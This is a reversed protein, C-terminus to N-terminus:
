SETRRSAEQALQVRSTLGLKTYVHTLHTQVTRHSVFLRAAIDKNGLGEGVLRVVDLETPTLSAWGSSPRKREGRGRQAYAVVEQTSLATGEAWAADFDNEDLVNRITAVLAEYTADHVKFRVVGIRQRITHAAGLLRTAEQYSSAEAAVAALCELIGPIGLETGIAAACALADHADREARDPEGDALAIRARTTLAVTKHWGNAAPVDEDVLRRAADVDGLALEAEGLPNRIAAVLEAGQSALHRTAAQGHDQAVAPDGAALAAIAAAFQAFGESLEGIQGSDEVAAEAMSRAAETEGMYALVQAQATLSGARWMLDQAADADTLVERNGATAGALDGSVMKSWALWIRCTRSLFGDGISDAIERGAEAATRAERPDGAIMAAYAQGALNQAMAFPDNAARSMNIAQVLDRGVLDASWAGVFSRATLARGMLAPDELQRAAAVALEAHAASGPAGVWATLMAKDALARALVAPEIDLREVAEDTFVADFWALGEQIRGRGFWMPHLASALQLARNDDSNERSWAFAGRLNDIEIEAEDILAEGGPQQPADLLVARATYYDRHRSRLDDAEGSEGLREQAYQRVTELLRYRTRGRGAEAVVLSKDVLLTLLDLIQYREVDSGGAISQAADLDFGGMFVALRRFLVREPETLLAHSWDVSARLTQQRRVATRSGGTLLRFRDHLSDLIEALSLARVRAAALEIALPVGDLRRCIEIVSDVNDDTLGFDPRALRARDTFLDAAENEPSLSPVRWTVEGPIGIPERSTTLLTVGASAQLVAVILDACADILHECNDLVILARCDDVFRLLTDLASRGPYDPLGLARIVAVPVVDADALPALDVYWVEGDLGAAVRVALRTKGIGGAGTLTVLRNGALIRRVEEIQEERGVFSTLQSPLRQVGVVDSVRLPPFENRIDPHCLQVVKEARPLDRLAHTGLDALWAESPLHDIAMSETAGSLVTQGGHALDRLRATRNITPGIYNGEDRLQIEGTNLGIRLRIPALPARQLALACAVADSARTFALVFSDGEGQEVPRVGNYLTLLEALTGDLVAIAATMQDPQTEWLRTSGEVDALLLTVTGTPLGTVALDSWETGSMSALTATDTGFFM